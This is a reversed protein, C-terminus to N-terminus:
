SPSLRSDTLYVLWPQPFISKRFKLKKNDVRDYEGLSKQAAIADGRVTRIISSTHIRMCSTTASFNKKAQSEVIAGYM